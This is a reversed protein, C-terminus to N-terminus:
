LNRDEKNKAWEQANKNALHKQLVIYAEIYIDTGNQQAKQDIFKFGESLETDNENELIMEDVIRKFQETIEIPM